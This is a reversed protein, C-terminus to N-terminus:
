GSLRSLVTPRRTTRLEVEVSRLLLMAVFFIGGAEAPPSGATTATAAGPPLFSRKVNMSSNRPRMPMMIARPWACSYM